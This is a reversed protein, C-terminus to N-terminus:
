RRRGHHGGGHHRPPSHHRFHPPPAHHHHHHHHGGALDAAVVAAVLGGAILGGAGVRQGGAMGPQVRRHKEEIEHHIRDIAAAIGLYLLVDSGPALSVRYQEQMSMIIREVVCAQVAGPGGLSSQTLVSRAPWAGTVGIHVSGALAPAMEVAYTDGMMSHVGRVTCLHILTNTQPVFRHIIYVYSLWSFQEQLVLLPEGSLTCMHFSANRFLGSFMNADTRCFQFYPLGGPGHVTINSSWVRTRLQFMMPKGYALSPPAGIGVSGGFASLQNASQALQADSQLERAAAEASARAAAEQAALEAAVTAALQGLQQQALPPVSLIALLEPNGTNPYALLRQFYAALESSRRHINAANKKMDALLSKPPFRAGVRSAYGGLANTHLLLLNSYRGGFECLVAGHLVIGFTYKIAGAEEVSSVPVVQLGAVQTM